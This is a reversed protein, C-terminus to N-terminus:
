STTFNTARDPSRKYGERFRPIVPRLDM